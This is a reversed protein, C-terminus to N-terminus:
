DNKVEGIPTAKQIADIIANHKSAIDYVKETVNIYEDRIPEFYKNIVVVQAWEEYGTFSQEGLTRLTGDLIPYSVKEPKKEPDWFDYMVVLGLTFQWQVTKKNLLNRIALALPKYGEEPLDFTKEAVEKDAADAEEVITKELEQLEELTKGVLSKEFDKIEELKKNTDM